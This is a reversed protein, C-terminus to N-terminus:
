AGPSFTPFAPVHQAKHAAWIVLAIFAITGVVSLAVGLYGLILGAKAMGAGDEGTRRIQRLAMHGLIIAVVGGVFWAFIQGIGCVLSGVALGNTPRGMGPMPQYVHPPTMPIRSPLDATLAALQDYTHANLLATSRADFDDWSLRGDAHAQQLIQRVNERDADSARMSGYSGATM